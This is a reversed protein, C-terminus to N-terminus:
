EESVVRYLALSRRACKLIAWSTLTAGAIADVDQKMWLREDLEQDKFLGLWRAPPYYDMPENFGLIKISEIKGPPIVAVLVAEPMTRVVHTDIFAVKEASAYYIVLRSDMKAKAQQEVQVLQLPTLLLEKRQYPVEGFVQRLALEKTQILKAQATDGGIFLMGACLAPIGIQCWFFEKARVNSM